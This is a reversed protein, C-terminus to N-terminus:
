SATVSNVALALLSVLTCGDAPSDNDLRSAAILARISYMMFVGYWTNSLSVSVYLVDAPLEDRVVEPSTRDPLPALALPLRAVFVM